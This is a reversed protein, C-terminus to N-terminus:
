GEKESAQEKDLRHHLDMLYNEISSLLLKASFDGSKSELNEQAEARVGEAEEIQKKISEIQNM